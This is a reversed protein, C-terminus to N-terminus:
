VAPKTRKRTGGSSAAICVIFAGATGLMMRWPFALRLEGLRFGDELDPTARTAEFWSTWEVFVARESLLTLVFGTVLALIVSAGNGRSTFLAALFVALLGTYAYTMVGLALELLTSAHDTAHQWWVCLCAFLGLIVGFLVVGRRAVRLCEAESVSPHMKRYFDSVFASSMANLASDLSSLSIAFLGAIMLGSLGPPMQTTIFQLFVRQGTPPPGGAGGSMLEPRTYFVWLLLGLLMFILVVPIAAVQSLIVSGSARVPSRCTLMRQVLDQDTGLAALNLLAFGTIATWLTFADGPRVSFSLVKLKSGGDAGGGELAAVVDPIPVSIKSALLLLAVVIAILFVITQVVDTWIVTEIGGAYTYVIGAFTIAAIAILLHLPEIDAFLIYALAHAAIYVRAGSAFVRGVMFMGSAARRSREGFRVSLLEYVTAVRHRYFAPIFFVAVIVAAIITGLTASLYTLDGEFAQQPAGIFTAASLSTALVSIAVAWGPMARGALFYDSSDRVSRSLWIGTGILLTFYVVLVLWDAISFAHHSLHMM